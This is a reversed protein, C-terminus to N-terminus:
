FVALLHAADRAFNFGGDGIGLLGQGFAADLPQVFCEIRELRDRVLHSFSQILLRTRTATTFRRGILRSSGSSRRRRTSLVVDDVSFIDVYVFVLFLAM